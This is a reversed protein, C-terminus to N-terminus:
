FDSPEGTNIYEPVTPFNVGGSYPDSFFPENHEAFDSYDEITKDSLNQFRTHEGVWNLKIEGIPGNRQKAVIIEAIGAVEDYGKEGPKMEKDPRHVFLVVDADQEIAGSERLHALRPKADKTLDAQRNLQALCLVPIRLERALGKLRRAIKAVQEQRPDNSNEPEILGLYDIVLLRLDNQRRIRRAVAAIESVTRSPTDDIFMTAQSLDNATEMFRSKEQESLFGKRIKNSDIKGRSCILRLALEQRSMELSVLLVTQKLNVAVHEAINTAFATKGVSPRAALIILENAHMGDTMTDLDLFGTKITDTEGLMKRDLYTGADIMVSKIDFVQNTTQAECLEFMQSAAKNLLDKTSTDPAFADQILGSSLHILRRLTGKERVIKAYYEAHVTVHVSNMLEGLYAEGGVAELEESTQLRNVLLLLDIGSGDNRMEILHKFIRRNADSYFDDAQVLPVVLDCLLPDLLLSGVLGREADLHHPPVKELASLDISSSFNPKRSSKKSKKDPITSM